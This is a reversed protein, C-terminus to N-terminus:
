IHSIQSTVNLMKSEKVELKEKFSMETQIPLRRCEPVWLSIVENDHSPPLNVVDVPRFSDFLLKTDELYCAMHDETRETLISMLVCPFENCDEKDDM